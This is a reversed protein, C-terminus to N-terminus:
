FYIRTVSEIVCGPRRIGEIEVKIEKLLELGGKIPTVRALKTRARINSDVKIPYPFRVQDLGFNVVMRATPFEPTAEDVSGTLQPLLALTLFGHAITTKFPSEAAAREPDTPTWRPDGTVAALQGRFAQRNLAGLQGLALRTDAVQLQPLALSADAQEVLAAVAGKAAVEALYAHGDFIPGRLAVFLQGPQLRRSDTCLSSFAVDGGLLRGNLALAMEALSLPKLM